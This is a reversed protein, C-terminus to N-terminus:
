TFLNKMYFHHKIIYIPKKLIQMHYVMILPFIKEKKIKYNGLLGIKPMPRANRSILLSGSSLDDDLYKSFDRYYRGLRLSLDDNIRFLLYSEELYLTNKYNNIHVKLTVSKGSFDNKYSLKDDFLNYGENNYISWFNISSDFPINGIISRSTNEQSVLFSISFFLTLVKNKM